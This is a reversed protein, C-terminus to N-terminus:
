CFVSKYYLFIFNIHKCITKGIEDENGETTPLRCKCFQDICTLLKATIFPRGHQRWIIERAVGDPISTTQIAALQAAVTVTYPLKFCSPQRGCLRDDEEERGGSRCTGQRDCWRWWLDESTVGKAGVGGM